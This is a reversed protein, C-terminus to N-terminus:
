SLDLTVETGEVYKAATFGTFTAGTKDGILVPTALTNLATIDSETLGSRPDDLTIVRTDGDDFSAQMKLKFTTKTTDAM